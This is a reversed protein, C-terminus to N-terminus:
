STGIKHLISRGPPARREEVIPPTAAHSEAPQSGKQSPTGQTQTGHTPYTDPYDTTGSAGPQGEDESSNQNTDKSHRKNHM